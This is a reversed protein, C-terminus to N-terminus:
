THAKTYDLAQRALQSWDGQYEAPVQLWDKMARGKGSPDWNQAGIYKLKLHDVAEQGLKFIMAGQHFAAFAKNGSTKLCPKGFLKSATTDFQDEFTQGIENFLQQSM